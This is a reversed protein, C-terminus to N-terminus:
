INNMRFLVRMYCCFFNYWCLVKLRWVYMSVYKILNWSEYFSQRLFWCISNESCSWLFELEFTFFSYLFYLLLSAHCFNKLWSSRLYFLNIIKKYFVNQELLVNSDSNIYPRIMYLHINLYLVKDGNLSYWPSTQSASTQGASSIWKISIFYKIEINM